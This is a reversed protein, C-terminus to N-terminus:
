AKKIHIHVKRAIFFKAVNKLNGKKNIQKFYFFVKNM